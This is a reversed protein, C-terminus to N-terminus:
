LIIQAIQILFRFNNQSNMMARMSKSHLVKRHNTDDSNMNIMNKLKIQLINIITKM